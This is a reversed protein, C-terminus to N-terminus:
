YNSKIKKIFQRIQYSPPREGNPPNNLIKLFDNISCDYLTQFNSSNFKALIKELKLSNSWNVPFPLKRNIIDIFWKNEYDYEKENKDWM